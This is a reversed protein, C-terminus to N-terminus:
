LADMFKDAEEDSLHPAMLGFELESFDIDARLTPKPAANINAAEMIKHMPSTADTM